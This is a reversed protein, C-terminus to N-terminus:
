LIHIIICTKLNVTKIAMYNFNTKLNKWRDTYKFFVFKTM